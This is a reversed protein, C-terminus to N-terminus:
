GDTRRSDALALAARACNWDESTVTAELARRFMDREAFVDFKPRFEWGDALMKGRLALGDPDATAVLTCGELWNEDHDWDSRDACAWHLRDSGVYHGVTVRAVRMYWADGADISFICSVYFRGPGMGHLRELAKVGEPVDILDGEAFPAPLEGQGWNNTPRHGHGYQGGWYGTLRTLCRKCTVHPIVSTASYSGTAHCVAEDAALYAYHMAKVFEGLPNSPERPM